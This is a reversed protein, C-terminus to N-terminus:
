EVADGAVVAGKQVVADSSPSENDVSFSKFIDIIETFPNDSVLEAQALYLAKLRGEPIKAKSAFTAFIPKGPFDAKWQDGAADLLARLREYTQHVLQEVAIPELAGNVRGLESKASIGLANALAEANMSHAGSPMLDVNGVADRLRKSEILAAAYGVQSRAIERLKKEIETSSRLWSDHPEMSEFCKSLVVADLFYNELHYRGLIKMSTSEGQHKQSPAADRDALMYFRIGWLTKDLVETAIKSFSQLNGKGGSAQLVLSPFRNKLLFSYTQKDLSSETGEILVIKKGLSVIGISQGLRHLAETADAKSGLMVAQNGDDIKRPTLFVVSDNLSASIIDPSHSIFIFQNHEGVARLTNVLRSLLEPHLHLEPEDFFVICHSPKRLLFDFTITLVEREGSSLSSVERIEDGESYMLRQNQIDASHLKKPGLLSEFAERFAELPDAFELNMVTHGDNRLQIARSAISMKQSQIKKFIAHQTDQWRNALGGFSLDWGVAEDWPDAYEFQYNLPKVNQISRSSEYYIIASKLNRRTKNQQLLARLKQAEEPKSTNLLSAGWVSRESEDTAEIGFSVAGVSLNRFHNLLGNILRTKGVGNPGAIVVLDSLGEVQFTKIPLIDTATITSIRM